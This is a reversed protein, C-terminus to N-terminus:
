RQIRALRQETARAMTRIASIRYSPLDTFSQIGSTHQLLHRITVPPDHPPYNAAYKTIPDDLALEGREALQLIAVVTFQKTISGIRYVTGATAPVKAKLDAFGYGEALLVKDGRAIGISIGVARDSDIAAAAIRRVETALESPPEAWSSPEAFGVCALVAVVAIVFRDRRM